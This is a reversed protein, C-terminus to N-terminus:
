QGPHTDDDEKKGAAVNPQAIAESGLFGEGDTGSFRNGRDQQM